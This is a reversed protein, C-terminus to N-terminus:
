GASAAWFATALGFARLDGTTTGSMKNMAYAITTHADLDIIALSGGSGGWYLTHLNPLLGGNLAFGLGWRSPVGLILDVGEV